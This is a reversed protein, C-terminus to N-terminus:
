RNNTCGQMAPGQSHPFPSRVLCTGGADMFLRKIQGPAELRAELLRQASGVPGYCWGCSGAGWKTVTTGGGNLLVGAEEQESASGGRKFWTM